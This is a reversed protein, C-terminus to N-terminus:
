EVGWGHMPLPSLQFRKSLYITTNNNKFYSHITKQVQSSGSIGAIDSLAGTDEHTRLECVPRQNTLDVESCAPYNGSRVLRDRQDLTIAYTRPSLTTSVYQSPSAAGAIWEAKYSYNVQFFFLIVGVLYVCIATVFGHHRVMADSTVPLTIANRISCLWLMNRDDYFKAVANNHRYWKM